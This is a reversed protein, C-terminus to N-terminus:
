LHQRGSVACISPRTGALQQICLSLFDKLAQPSKIGYSFEDYIDEIDIIAVRLGQAQRLAVLDQLWALADGNIDWGVDRHTILIYDAGNATDFLSSASDEALADPVNIAASSVVYYSDGMSAPEFDISFNGDGDPGSVTYDAIQMVDAPDTIDYASWPISPFDM